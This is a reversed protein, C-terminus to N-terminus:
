RRRVRGSVPSGAPATGGIGIGLLARAGLMAPNNQALGALVAVVFTLSLGLLAARRNIRQLLALASIASNIGPATIMTGATGESVHLDAAVDSM